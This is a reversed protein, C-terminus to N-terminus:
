LGTFQNIVLCAKIELLKLIELKKCLNETKRLISKVKIFYQHMKDSYQEM